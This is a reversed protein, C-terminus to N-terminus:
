VKAYTSVGKAVTKAVKGEDMLVKLIATAKSTSAIDFEKMVETARYARNEEMGEYVVKATKANEISAVSPKKEGSNKKATLEAREQMRKADETKGQEKLYDAIRTYFQVLTEQKKEM